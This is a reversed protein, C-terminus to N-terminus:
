LFQLIEGPPNAAYSKLTLPQSRDANEGGLSLWLLFEQFRIGTPVTSTQKPSKSRKYRHAREQKEDNCGGSGGVFSVFAPLADLLGFHPQIIRDGFVTRLARLRSIAPMIKSRLTLMAPSSIMLPPVSSVMPPVGLCVPVVVFAPGILV